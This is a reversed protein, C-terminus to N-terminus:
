ENPENEGEINSAMLTYTVNGSLQFQWQVPGVGQQFWYRRTVTGSFHDSVEVAHVGERYQGEMPLIQAVPDTVVLLSVMGRTERPEESDPETVVETLHVNEEVRPFITGTRWADPLFTYPPFYTRETRRVLSDDEALREDITVGKVKLVPGARMVSPELVFLEDVTQRVVQIEEGVMLDLFVTTRRLYEGDEPGLTVISEAGETVSPPSEWDDTKRRYRWQASEFVPFFSRRDIVVADPAAMVSGDFPVRDVGMDGTMGDSSGSSDEGCGTAMFVMILIIATYRM